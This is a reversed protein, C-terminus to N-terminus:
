FEIGQVRSGKFRQVKSSKFWQVRSGKFEQVRSGKQWSSEDYTVLGVALKM